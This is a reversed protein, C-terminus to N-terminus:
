IRECAPVAYMFDKSFCSKHLQTQAAVNSWIPAIVTLCFLGIVRKKEIM